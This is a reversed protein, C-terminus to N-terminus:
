RGTFLWRQATMASVDTMDAVEILAGDAVADNDGYYAQLVGTAPAGSAARCYTCQYGGDDLTDAIPVAGYVENVFIGSVDCTEGNAAYSNDWAIDVLSKFGLGAILGSNRTPSLASITLSM